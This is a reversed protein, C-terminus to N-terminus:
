NLSQFHLNMDADLRKNQLEDQIKQDRCFEEWTSVVIFMEQPSLERIRRLIIKGENELLIDPAQMEKLTSYRFLSRSANYIKERDM